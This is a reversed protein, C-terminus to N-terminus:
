RWKKIDSVLTLNYQMFNTLMKESRDHLNVSKLHPPGAKERCKAWFIPMASSQIPLGRQHRIKDFLNAQM